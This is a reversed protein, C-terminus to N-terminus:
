RPGFVLGNLAALAIAARLRQPISLAHLQPLRGLLTYRLALVGLALVLWGSWLWPSVRPGVMLAMVLACLGVPYPVRRGQKAWVRLMEEGLINASLDASNGQM